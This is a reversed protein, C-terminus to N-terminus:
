KPKFLVFSRFLRLTSVRVANSRNCNLILCGHKLKVGVSFIIIRHLFAIEERFEFESYSTSQVNIKKTKFLHDCIIM